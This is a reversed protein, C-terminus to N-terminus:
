QKTETTFHPEYITIRRVGGTAASRYKEKLRKAQERMPSIRKQNEEREQRQTQM